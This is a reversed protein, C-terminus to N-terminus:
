PRFRFRRFAGSFAGAEVLGGLGLLAGIGLATGMGKSLGFGGDSAEPEDPTAGETGAAPSDSPPLVTAIQSPDILQGTVTEGTDEPAPQDQKPEKRDPEPSSPTTQSPDGTGPYDGYPDSYDSYGPDNYAPAPYNEEPDENEKPQNKKPDPKKAKDIFVQAGGTAPNYGNATVRLSVVFSQGSKGSFTRTLSDGSGSQVAGNVSWVFSPSVGSALGDPTATFTVKSGSKVTKERPAVTVSFNKLSQKPQYLQPNLTGYEFEASTGGPGRGPVRMVTVNQEDVYFSALGASNGRIQNGSYTVKGQNGPFVIEIKSLTALTFDKGAPNQQGEAAELVERLSYTTVQQGDITTPTGNLTTIDVEYPKSWQYGYVEVVGPDAALAKGPGLGSLLGAALLLSGLLALRLSTTKRVDSM